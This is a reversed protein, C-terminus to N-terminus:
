MGAARVKRSSDLRTLGSCGGSPLSNIASPMRRNPSLASPQRMMGARNPASASNAPMRAMHNAPQERMADSRVPTNRTEPKGSKTMLRMAMSSMKM